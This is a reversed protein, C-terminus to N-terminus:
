WAVPFGGVAGRVPDGITWVDARSADSVNLTLQWDDVDVTETWGEVFLDLTATGAQSPVGTLGFRIGVEAANLVTGALVPDAYLDLTVQQLRTRPALNPAARAAAAAYADAATRYPASLTEIYYDFLDISAQDVFRAATGGAPNSATVDNAMVADDGPMRLGGRTQEADVTFSQARNYRWTRYQITVTGNTKVYVVGGVTRGVERLADAPTRGALLQPGIKDNGPADAGTAIYGTSAEAAGYASDGRFNLLKNVWAGAPSDQSSFRVSQYQVLLPLDTVRYDYVAVHSVTGAYCQNPRGCGVNLISFRPLKSPFPGADLSGIIGGKYYLRIRYVWNSGSAIPEISAAAFVIQGRTLLTGTVDGTEYWVGSAGHFFGAAVNGPNSGGSGKTYLGFWNGSRDRMSMLPVGTITFAADTAATFYGAITAGAQSTPKTLFARLGYGSTASAPTFVAAPLSDYGPGTGAGFEVMGDGGGVQLLELPAQAYGSSDAAGTAGQPEGLTYYAIPHDDLIDEEGASRYEAIQGYRGYRDVAQVNADVVAAPGDDFETPLKRLYGFFRSRWVSPTGEYATAAPGDECQVGDVWVLDGAAPTASSWLQLDHTNATATFTVQVRQWAGTTSSATGFGIGGIAASVGVDGAPVWVYASATYQSGVRLGHFTQTTFIGGTGGTWAVLASSGGVWSRVTSWTVTGGSCGTGYVASVDAAYSPNPAYNKGGPRHLYTVKIRRNLTVRGGGATYPSTSSELTLAGDSNDLLLDLTSVDVDTTEDGSRAHHIEVPRGDPGLVLRDSVDTWTFSTSRPGNVWDVEVVVIPPPM